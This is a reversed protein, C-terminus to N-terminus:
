LSFASIFTPCFIGNLHYFTQKPTMSVATQGYINTAIKQYQKATLTVLRLSYFIYIYKQVRTLVKSRALALRTLTKKNNRLTALTNLEHM